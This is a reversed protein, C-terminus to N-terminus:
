SSASPLDGGTYLQKFRSDQRALLAHPNDFEQLVGHHLVAVKDFDIITELKHAVAIITHKAFKQRVIRQILADTIDDVSSTAEDLILISSPRLLAQALCFLQKQGHSLNIDDIQTDLGGKEQINDWLKVDQLAGMIAQDTAQKYPDVNLRVTGNLLLVDQPLGIIRARVEKRPITSIDVGDIIISGAKMEIMRFIAMILSSKGSGTRGCIGIKEGAQISLNLGKLVNHAGDYSADVDHFQIAGQAPWDAPPPGKELPGNESAVSSTFNRVRAVAGIHTELLTWYQLVLKLHQGFLVVNLLAVGVAAGSLIGRLEVILVILMVAVAAVLLDLVLQLWRQVSFLLYFPRQSRDLLFRNKKELAGQWGFARVTPLGALIETFQTYLPSKAELDLFRLQRSTRLYYKQVFYLVIFWIPFSVATYVSSVGILIIQAVCLMFATFFNLATIPLDMDILQLDQSFRNLTVGTDTTAFFSMPASLVTNLLRWHFNEGSQPVMTIIIQWCSVVLSFLGAVGLLAYIGLWYGLNQNPERANATAWWGLWIQPFSVCFVYASIAVIFTIVSVWGVSRAYYAYISLDGTRKNAEFESDPDDVLEKTPPLSPITDVSTSSMLHDLSTVPQSRMRWDAPPLDLSSVYGGTANLEDFSGQEAIQGKDNLVIIHDAYALRKSSSSTLIVTTAQRRFLGDAGLLNHFVQHETDMDLGSLVDDLMCTNHRAYAARALAVRQSQGGSLAVGKSGIRTSDGLQMQRLDEILACAKVVTGYWRDDMESYATISERVTGNMHFPTQDCYSIGDGLYRISGALAPVEGLLSKLLTTKGCGVPGVIITLKGRPVKAEIASLLASEYGFSGGEVSLAHGGGGPSTFPALPKESASTSISKETWAHSTTSSAQTSSANSPNISDDDPQSKIRHDVHETTELFTQIRDFCGLSGAFAMMAMILSSLPEALLAFLSLSTFVTSTDLTTPGHGRLALVAAVSFTLVPAIVPTTFAFFMSGILLKRFGKSIKLEQVRLDHLNESLTDTLGCMKVRKMSGLMKATASIRREIAELWLAQRQIVLNMVFVSGLFSVIAVAIPIACAAGLQRELLFIALAVEIPNAWVEHMTTWGNTIREIDASMLTLSSAPDAADAKVLPTKDFMLSVLGGRAMTIARYTLHQYQGTTIAIGCYVLFYAGILGYGINTTSQNIPMSNFKIAREILFPQCFNFGILALRPPVGALLRWQLRRFFIKLLSRPLGKARDAWPQYVRDYLYNSTLHKDLPLLDEVALSNGYGTRFLRNLWLFLCKGFLGSKAEPSQSMWETRLFSQKGVAEVVLLLFRIALAGTSVAAVTNNYGQLWLTRLRAADFVLSFLLYLELLSSPRITRQHEFYSLVALALFGVLTVVANPISARTEIATPRAWLAVLAIQLIVFLAYLLLKLPLWFKPQVKVTRRALYIARFPVLVLVLCLPLISLITEEFLLTFDFGGRCSKAYPGFTDDILSCPRASM